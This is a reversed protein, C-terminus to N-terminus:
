LIAEDIPNRPLRDLRIYRCTFEMPRTTEAPSLHIHLRPTRTEDSLCFAQDAEYMDDRHPQDWNVIAVKARRKAETVNQAVVFLNRHVETFQTKDYGGMNVYYLRLPGSFPESRM